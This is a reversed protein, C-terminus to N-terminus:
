CGKTKQRGSDGKVHSIKLSSQDSSLLLHCIWSDPMLLFLGIEKVGQCPRISWRLVLCLSYLYLVLLAVSLLPLAQRATLFVQPSESTANTSFKWTLAATVIMSKFLPWCQITKLLVSAAADELVLVVM